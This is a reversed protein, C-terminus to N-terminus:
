IKTSTAIVSPAPGISERLLMSRVVGLDDDDGM